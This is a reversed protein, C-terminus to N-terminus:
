SRPAGKSLSLTVNAKTMSLKDFCAGRDDCYLVITACGEVREPHRILVLYM